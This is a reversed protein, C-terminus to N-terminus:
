GRPAPPLGEVEDVLPEAEGHLRDFEIEVLRFERKRRESLEVDHQEQPNEVM